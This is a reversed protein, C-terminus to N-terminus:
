GCYTTRMRRTSAIRAARLSFLADSVGRIEERIGCRAARLAIAVTRTVGSLISCSALLAAPLSGDARRRAQKTSSNRSCTTCGCRRGRQAMPTSRSL